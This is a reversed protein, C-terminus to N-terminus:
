LKIQRQNSRNLISLMRVKESAKIKFSINSLAHQHRKDYQLFVNRFEIGETLSPWNTPLPYFTHEPAEQQLKVYQSIREVSVM